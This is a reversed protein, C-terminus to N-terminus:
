LTLGLTLRIAQTQDSRFLLATGLYLGKTGVGILPGASTITGTYPGWDHTLDGVAGLYLPGLTFLASLYSYVESKPYYDTFFAASFYKSTFDVQNNLIAKTELDNGGYAGTKFEVGVRGFTWRPGAYIGLLSVDKRGYYYSFLALDPWGDGLKQNSNLFM